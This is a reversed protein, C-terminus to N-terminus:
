NLGQPYHRQAIQYFVNQYNNQNISKSVKIFYNLFLINIVNIVINTSAGKIQLYNYCQHKYNKVVTANNNQSNM